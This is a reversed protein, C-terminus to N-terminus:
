MVYEPKYLQCKNGTTCGHCPNFNMPLEFGLDLIKQKQLQYKPCKEPDEIKVSKIGPLVHQNPNFQM